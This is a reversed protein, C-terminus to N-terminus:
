QGRITPWTVKSSLSDFGKRLVNELDEDMELKENFNQRLYMEVLKPCSRFLHVLQELKMECGWFNLTELQNTFCINGFFGPIYSGLAYSTNLARNSNLGGEKALLEFIVSAEYLNDSGCSITFSKDAIM